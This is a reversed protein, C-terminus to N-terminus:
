PCDRISFLKFQDFTTLVKM